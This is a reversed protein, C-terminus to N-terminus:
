TLFNLLMYRNVLKAFINMKDGKFDCSLQGRIFGPRHNKFWMVSFPSFSKVLFEGRYGDLLECAKWELAGAGRDTKFEIDLLVAGDVLDLVEELLPIGEGTGLLKLGKIEKYGCDKIDRDCGTMRRLNDDHFVAIRGDKLLHLDLEIATHNAVANRLAAASNEPTGGANDHLGRHAISLGKLFRLDKRAM